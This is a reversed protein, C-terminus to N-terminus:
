FEKDYPWFLIAGGLLVFVGVLFGMAIAIEM